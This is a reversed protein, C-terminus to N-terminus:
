WPLMVDNFAAALAIVVAVVRRCAHKERLAIQKFVRIYLIGSILRPTVINFLPALLPTVVSEM